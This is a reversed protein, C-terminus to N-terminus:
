GRSARGLTVPSAPRGLGASTSSIRRVQWAAYLLAVAVVLAYVGVVTALAVAGIGPRAFIVVGALVSIVGVLALAWEGTMQKRLRVAALVELAGTVVAWGGTVMVLAFVTLGPLLAALLGAVVGVVGAGVYVWQRRGGTRRSWGSAVMGIGDVMVYVAFLFALALVTLGPLVVALVGFVLALVGRLALLLSLRSAVSM